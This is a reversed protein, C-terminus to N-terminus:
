AAVPENLSVIKAGWNGVLLTSIGAPSLEIRGFEDISMGLYYLLAAGIVDSHSVVAIRGDPHASSTKQLHQVIRAQVDLMSEGGPARAVLRASNWQQWRPDAKLEDLSCGTWEGVDVEDLMPVIELPLGRDRAIPSATERARDQPSSQVLNLGERALRQTVWQAQERGSESLSVGTMRGVLVRDLLDHAAHRVLFFTTTM